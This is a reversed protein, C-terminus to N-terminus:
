RMTHQNKALAIAQKYALVYGRTMKETNFKQRSYRAIFERDMTFCQNIVQVGEVFDEVLMGTRGHSILEPMAGRRTALTPTGCYAAELVTLGFPERFNTPHLNCVAHSLLDIKNDFDLEGLYEVLPNSLYPEIKDHFYTEGKYDIKGALKIKMNTALALQIALHPSKDWDFRGLFCLYNQPKSVLPFLQPNEGNYVTRIYNLGPFSLRQNHSISVYNLSKHSNFYKLLGFEFMGHLTTINPFHKFPLLDYNHSHIVDIRPLLTKLEKKIQANATETQREHEVLGKSAAPFAIAHDNIAILECDVQSDGSALLIPTHGAKKLGQILNYIVQESGGYQKPPVAVHPGAIIAIRM